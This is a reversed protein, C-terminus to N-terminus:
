RVHASGETTTLTISPAPVTATPATTLHIGCETKATGAWRGSRPDEGLAVPRTCPWCGISGYGRDSLPNRPLDHDLHYQEVEDDTMRALPNVKVLGHGPDWAAVPTGARLPSDARRLGTIWASKGSLTRRLPEVKRAACCAEVNHSWLDDPVVSPDPGIITLNAGVRESLHQAYWLTEAFLYQTDILVVPTEPAHTAVLHVLAADGFSATAVLGTTFTEAAWGVIEAPTAHELEPLAQPSAFPTPM